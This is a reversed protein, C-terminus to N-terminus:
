IVLNDLPSLSRDMIVILKGAEKKNKNKLNRLRQNILVM